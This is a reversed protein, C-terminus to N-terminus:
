LPRFACFRPRPDSRELTSGRMTRTWRASRARRIRAALRLALGNSCPWKTEFRLREAQSPLPRPTRHAWRRRRRLSHRSRHIRRPPWRWPSPHQRPDARRRPRRPRASRYSAAARRPGPRNSTPQPGPCAVPHRRCRFPIPRPPLLPLRSPPLPHSRQLRRPNRLPSRCDITYRRCSRRVSTRTRTRERRAHPVRLRQQRPGM